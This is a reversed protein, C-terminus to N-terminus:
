RGSERTPRIQEYLKEVAAEKTTLGDAGARSMAEQNDMGANVSLGIVRLRPYRAKIRSTAEIGSMKPMNLDMVVVDPELQEVLAIGEEGDAAEGVIELDSYGNLMTRLGERVMHHDDVLLVRIRSSPMAVRPQPRLPQDLSGEQMAKDVDQGSAAGRGTEAEDRKALPLTLTATTGRGPSSNIAFSGGLAVMRERISFLGFQSSPEKSFERSPPFSPAFGKGQDRVQIQLATADREINVSVDTTDAHKRVNFLLERVSQFLLIAQDEPLHIVESPASVTVSLEHKKMFEALWTFGAALGQDRLVPPSLEAVLTRTYRLADGLADDAERLFQGWSSDSPMHRKSQALKIKALVLTQQLYDHLDAALRNRERQEALNLETALARLRAQSALLEATRAEVHQELENNLRQLAEATEAIKQRAQVQVSIDRFYCVLGYRGDPLTIRDLRWEYHETIGRDVRCEARESTVYPIGTELTHRFISVLEDAYQKTWLRHIAEDFDRGILDPIDGFVPRAMPNVQLIRFDADVLYIGM